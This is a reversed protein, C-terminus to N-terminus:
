YGYFLKNPNQNPNYQIYLDLKSSYVELLTDTNMIMSQREM